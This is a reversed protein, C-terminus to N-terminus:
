KVNKNAHFLMANSKSNFISSFILSFITFRLVFIFSQISLDFISLRIYQIKKNGKSVSNLYSIPLLKHHITSSWRVLLQIDYFRWSWGVCVFENEITECKSRNNWLLDSQVKTIQLKYTYQLILSYIKSKSLAFLCM